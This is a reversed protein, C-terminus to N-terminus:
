SSPSAQQSKKFIKWFRLKNWNIFHAEKTTWYILYIGLLTLLINGNWMGFFPPIIGRDALEEGGILFAWYILFFGMALGIATALGGKRGMVGVPAGLLLFVLCAFPVSFKKHAEVMLKNIRTRAGNIINHRSKLQLYLSRNRSYAREAPRQVIRTGTEDYPDLTFELAKDVLVNMKQRTVEIKDRRENVMEMIGQVNLERDGRRDSDKHELKMGLDKIRILQQTFQTRTYLAPDEEDVEHVEGDYLTFTVADKDEVYEMRGSDATIIRPYNRGEEEFLTVGKMASTNYDLQNIMLKIGPFDEIVIGDQLFVSPKKRKIDTLLLRAKHNTEPLIKDNFLILGATLLSCILILPLILKYFPYGLAKLAIIERDESMKGFVMLTAVLVAMPVALTMMWALSFGFLQLVVGVPVGKQIILRLMKLIYDLVLVFMVVSLAGLFPSIYEKIIYRSIIKM